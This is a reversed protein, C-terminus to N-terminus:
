ALGKLVTNTVMMALLEFILIFFDCSGIVKANERGEGMQNEICINKQFMSGRSLKKSIENGRRFVPTPSTPPLFSHTNM